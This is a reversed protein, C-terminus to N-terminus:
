NEANSARQRRSLEEIAARQLQMETEIRKAAEPIQVNRIADIEQSQRRFAEVHTAKFTAYDLIHSPIVEQMRDVATVVGDLKQSMSSLQVAVQSSQAAQQPSIWESLYGVLQLVTLTAVLLQLTRLPDSQKKAPRAQAECESM